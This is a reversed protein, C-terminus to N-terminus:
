PASLDISDCGYGSYYAPDKGGVVCAVISEDTYDFATFMWTMEAWHTATPNNLTYDGDDTYDSLSDSDQLTRGWEDWTGCPDYDLQGMTHFENWEGGATQHTDMQVLSAWGDLLIDYTWTGLEAGSATPTVTDFALSVTQWCSTDGPTDGGSEPKDEGCGVAFLSLLTPLLFRTM